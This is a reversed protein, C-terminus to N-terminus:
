KNCEVKVRETEVPSKTADLGQLENTTSEEAVSDVLNENMKDIAESKSEVENIGQEGESGVKVTVEGDGETGEVGDKLKLETSEVIGAGEGNDNASGDEKGEMKAIKAKPGEGEDDNEKKRKETKEEWKLSYYNNLFIQHQLSSDCKLLERLAMTAYSSSPLCIDVIVGKYRGENLPPPIDEGNVKQLDSQILEVTVDNYHVSRWSFQKPVEVLRRYTGRLSYKRVSQKMAESSLGDLALIDEYWKAVVNNPYTVDYGPLPLVVDEIRVTELDKKTLTKVKPLSTRSSKPVVNAECRVDGEVFDEEEQDTQEPQDPQDGQEPQESQEAQESQLETPLPGSESIAEEGEVSESSKESDGDLFVLDGEIPEHGFEKLRRSTIHNWIYSQYSHLYMLRTNLPISELANVLDNPSRHKLGYLLHGEVGRPRRDLAKLAANADRTDWWIRRAAGLTAELTQGVKRNRAHLGDNKRPKLILEVAEKWKGLLLARGVHHTPVSTSGFRQLGYYNIFGKEKLSKAAEEVVSDSVGVNRLVIQFRNGKLDGLRIPESHCDYNGVAVGKITGNLEAIKKPHVRPVCAIQTTKARRDKTGAYTFKGIPIRLKQAIVNAAEMTDLNEKYLVFHVFKGLGQPWGDVRQKGKPKGIVMFKKDGRDITNSVLRSGFCNKVAEHIKKREDKSVETVEIEVEPYDAGHLLMLKAQVEKSLIENYDQLCSRKEGAPVSDGITCELTTLQVINGKLDIESVHFDSYRQKIVASFGQHEGIYHKIGVDAESCRFEKPESDPRPSVPPYKRPPFNKQVPRGRRKYVRGRMPGRYPPRKHFNGRPFNNFNGRFFPNYNGRHFNM